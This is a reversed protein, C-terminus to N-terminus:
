RDIVAEDLHPVGLVGLMVGMDALLRYRSFLEVYQGNVFNTSATYYENETDLLDLLTRQGLSFQKAYADRSLLSAEAHKQLNPLRDVASRYANWSVRVSQELQREARALIERAEDMLYTTEGVRAVDGGGKFLNYRLRLMLYKNNDPQSDVPSTLRNKQVGMELDVRPYFQARAVDRQARAADVDAKASQLIRSYELAREVAEEPTKPLLSVEPPAPRVLEKPFEGVILKYNVRAVVLNAETATLNSRALALRAEIQDQDSKRGVGSSTRLKIQDYTKEHVAVNDKTLRIIDEQRLVELYAEIAKLATQESTYAVKHASSEVRAKNRDYEGSASFGDFLMQSITLSGDHHKQNISGGYNSITSANKPEQKGEGIVVDMRPLFASVAQSVGKDAAMRRAVEMRVDPNTNLTQLIVDNLTQASSSAAPLVLALALLRWSRIFRLHLM